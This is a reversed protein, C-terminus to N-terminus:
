SFWVMIMTFAIVLYGTAGGGGSGGSIIKAGGNKRGTPTPTTGTDSPTPSTGNISKALDQFAAYSNSSNPDANIAFTM